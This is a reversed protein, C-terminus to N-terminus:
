EAAAAGAPASPPVPIGCGSGSAADAAFEGLAPGRELRERLAALKSTLAPSSSGPLLPPPHPAGTTAVVVTGTSAWRRLVATTTTACWVSGRLSLGAMTSTPPAPRPTNARKFRLTTTKTGVKSGTM